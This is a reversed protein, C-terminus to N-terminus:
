QLMGYIRNAAIAYADRAHQRLPGIIERIKPVLDIEADAELLELAEEDGIGKLFARPICLALTKMTELSTLRELQCEAVTEFTKRSWLRRITEDEMAQNQLLDSFSVGSERIRQEEALAIVIRIYRWFFDYPHENRTAIWVEMYANFIPELAARLIAEEYPETEGPAGRADRGIAVVQAIFDDFTLFPQDRKNSQLRNAVIEVLARRIHAAQADGNPNPPSAACTMQERIRRNLAETRKEEMIVIAELVQVLTERDIPRHQPEV